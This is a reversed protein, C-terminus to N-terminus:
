RGGFLAFIAGMCEREHRLMKAATDDTALREITADSAGEARMDAALRDRRAELETRLPRSLYESM